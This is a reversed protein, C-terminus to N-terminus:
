GAQLRAIRDELPPHTSFLALIGGKNSIKMSAMAPHSTDIMEQSKKLRQLASVMKSRGALSAGGADAHYERWRSFAAVVMSGLISFILDFVFTLIWNIMYPFGNDSDKNQMATSIAFAIIRSLFMVFANVVGQILTMTVMDGNAVHAVEHGLVGEVEEWSMNQLLGSSVAVLSNNRTPGTAFANIEPSEYIGVEPMTRLGAQRALRHVMEILQLSGGNATSPNIIEVGMTWKAMVKSLLLSIFAGIMGWALCMILLKTMNISYKGGFGEIYRHAGTLTLVISITAIVLINTLIFLLVRKAM